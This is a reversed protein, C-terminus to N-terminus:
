EQKMEVRQLKFWEGCSACSFHIRDLQQHLSTAGCKPCRDAM